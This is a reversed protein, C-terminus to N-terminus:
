VTIKQGYYELLNNFVGNALPTKAERDTGEAWIRVRIHSKYYEDSERAKTLRTLVTNELNGTFVPNPIAKLSNSAADYYQYAPEPTGNENLSYTNGEYIGLTSSPSGQMSFVGSSNCNLYLSGSSLIPYGDGTLTFATQKGTTLTLAGNSAYSLYKGSPLSKLYYKYSGSVKEATFTLEPAPDMIKNSDISVTDSSITGNSEASLAVHQTGTNATIVIQDGDVISFSESSSGSVTGGVLSPNTSSYFLFEKIKVAKTSANYTLLVQFHDIVGFFDSKNPNADVTLKKWQAYKGNYTIGYLDNDYVGIYTYTKGNFLYNTLSRESSAKDGTITTTSLNLTSSNTIDIYHDLDMSSGVDLAGYFLGDSSCYYMQHSIPAETINGGSSNLAHGEWLYKPALSYKSTDDLGFTKVPDGKDVSIDGPIVDKSIPTYDSCDSLQYKENPVWIYKLSETENGEADEEVEFFALRAAGAIYDRSFDGYNSKNNLSNKQKDKPIVRSTNLLKVDLPEQSRFYIDKEYYHTNAVPSLKSIWNGSSDNLPEGTSRNLAPVFFNTGNGTILPYQKVSNDEIKTAYNVDDFSSQLGESGSRVSLRSAEAETRYTFWAFIALFVTICVVFVLILNRFITHRKVKM